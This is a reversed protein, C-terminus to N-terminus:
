DSHRIEALRIVDLQFDDIRWDELCGRFQRRNTEDMSPTLVARFHRGDRVPEIEGVIDSSVVLRCTVLQAEVMEEISQGGAGRKVHASVVVEIQSDPAIPQHTSLTAERLAVVAVVGIAVGVAALLLRIAIKV